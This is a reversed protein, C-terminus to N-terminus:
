QYNLLSCFSKKKKKIALRKTEGKAIKTLKKIYMLFISDIRFMTPSYPVKLHIIKAKKSAKITVKGIIFTM